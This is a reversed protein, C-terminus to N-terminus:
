IKYCSFIINLFIPPPFRGSYPVGKRSGCDVIINIYRNQLVYEVIIHIIHFNRPVHSLTKLNLVDCEVSIQFKEVFNM